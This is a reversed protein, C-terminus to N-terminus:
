RPIPLTRVTESAARARDGAPRVILADARALTFVDASGKWDLPTARGAADLTMPQNFERPGNAPLPAALPRDILDDGAPEGRMRRIVRAAFRLTCVFGSVPNGPLGFVVSPPVLSLPCPVLPFSAPDERTGQGKDRTGVVFPKGPKMRVKTIPLAFGLGRLAVPVHDHRGMSMGGTIFLIDHQRSFRDIADRTAQFDDGVHSRTTAVGLAALLAVLMPGNADRIANAHPLPADHPVVEDGTTLVHARIPTLDLPSPPPPALQGLQALVGVTAPGVPDGARLVVDGRRADSGRRAISQGPRAARAFAVFQRGDDLATTEEVPVVADVGPPVPAGTMIAVCTGAAISDGAWPHGAVIEGVCALTAPFSLDAAHVGYGDVLAKDFPPYDRDAVVDAALTRPIAPAISSERGAVPLADLLAIAADVSLLTDLGLDSM